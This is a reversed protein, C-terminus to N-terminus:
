RWRDKDRGREEDRERETCRLGDAASLLTSSLCLLLLDADVRPLAVDDDADVRPLALDDDLVLVGLCCYSM